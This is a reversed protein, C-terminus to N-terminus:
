TLSLSRFFKHRLPTKLDKQRVERSVQLTKGVFVSPPSLCPFVDTFATEM